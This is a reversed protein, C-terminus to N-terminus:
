KTGERDIYILRFGTLNYNKTRPYTAGVFFVGAHDDARNAGGCLPTAEGYTTIWRWGLGYGERDGDPYLGLLRATVPPELGPEAQIDRFACNGIGPSRVERSLRIHGDPADYKLTGPTGPAVSEGNADLARWLPSEMGMDADKLLLAEMPILQIEGNMLRFGSDWENLNGNLDYIGNPTGDHSWTLPGSGCLTQGNEALEGKEQPFFYDQGGYNNGHPLFGQKRCWLAIAMRLAFPTMHWGAGKPRCAHLAEDYSVGSVPQVMPLSCAIGDALSSQYKGVLVEGDVGCFGPCLAASGNGLLDNETMRPIRVMVSPLGSDDYVITNKHDSLAEIAQKLQDGATEPTGQTFLAAAEQLAEAKEGRHERVAYENALLAQLRLRGEQDRIPNM